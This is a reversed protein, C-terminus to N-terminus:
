KGRGIVVVGKEWGVEFGMAEFFDRLVIYQGKVNVYNTGDKLVTDVEELQGLINIKTKGPTPKVPDKVEVKTSEVEKVMKVIDNGYSSSPAWKGSLSEVTKASGKLYPFHRPDPTGPKPYGEAGAYLALHDVQAQIGEEWSAFRKHANPDKDGGGGSVKLGCPNKFTIDLVGGFKFYGTEKASQTYTIIPNVGAAKSVEYYLPALDIFEQHAKKSRAWEKMQEISATPKGLINMEKGGIEGPNKSKYPIGEITCIAKVVAEACKQRNETVSLFERDSKTDIFGYEVILTTVNGTERHMFYYDKGNNLTRKKSGRSRLGLSELNKLIERALKGDNHQSILVEAGVGGGANIHSSICIKAGSSKVKAARPKPEVTIDSDRTRKVEIGCEKSLKAIRNGIDLTWDKEKYGGAGAGPDTGGHGSDEWLLITM